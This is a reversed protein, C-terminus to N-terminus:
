GAPTADRTTALSRLIESWHTFLLLHGAGEVHHVTAGPVRAAIVEAMADSTRADETGHWVDVPVAIESIDFRWPRTAARGHDYVGRIGQDWALVRSGRLMTALDPDDMVRRDSPPAIAREWALSADVRELVHRRRSALFAKAAPPAYRCLRAYTLLEPRMDRVSGRGVLWGGPAGVLAVRDVLDPAEHALALAFPGGWSWGLAAVHDLGLQELAKRVDGVWRRLSYGPCADSDGVGPPDVALLRVGTDATVFDDPFRALRSHGHGPVYVVPRGTCDGVDAVAMYRGDGVLVRRDM